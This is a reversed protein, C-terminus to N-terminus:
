VYAPNNHVSVSLVLNLGLACCICLEDESQPPPAYHIIHDNKQLQNGDLCPKVSSAAAKKTATPFLADALTLDHSEAGAVTTVCGSPASQAKIFHSTDVSFPQYQGM